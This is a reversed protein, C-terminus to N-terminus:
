RTILPLYVAAREVRACLDLGALNADHPGPILGAPDVVVTFRCAGAAPMMVRVDAAGGAPLAAILATGVRNAPALTDGRYFEVPVSSAGATGGNYVRARVLIGGTADGVSLDAPNVLLAPEAAVTFTFANNATLM